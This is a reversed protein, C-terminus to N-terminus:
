PLITFEAAQSPEEHHCTLRPPTYLMVLIMRNLRYGKTDVELVPLPSPARVSPAVICSNFEAPLTIPEVRSVPACIWVMVM